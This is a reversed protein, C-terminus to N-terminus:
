NFDVSPDLLYGRDRHSGPTPVLTGQTCLEPVTWYRLSHYFLRVVHDGCPSPWIWGHQIRGLTPPVTGNRRVGKATMRRTM